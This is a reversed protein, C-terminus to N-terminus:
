ASLVKIFFGYRSASEIAKKVEDETWYLTDVGIKVIYSKTKDM